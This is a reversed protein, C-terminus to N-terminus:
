QFNFASFENKVATAAVEVRADRPLAAVEVCARAPPKEPFYRAYVENFSGFDKLDQLYVTTRVVEALTLGAAEIVVKLNELAQVTQEDIGGEVIKGERNLPLQGSTFVLGGARVAQSYPGIAEPARGSEVIEKM